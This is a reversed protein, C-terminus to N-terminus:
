SKGAASGPRFDSVTKMKDRHRQMALDILRDLLTGYPVGSAEWLKPYMSIPTFGPLTNVENIFVKGDRRDLFFDVRAMGSGDIARFATVALRRVEESLEPAIPAPILLQSGEALYKAEYDYFENCPVIEGPISAEAADNGLVSCEIERADLGAEIVAKRDYRFATELARGLEEKSRAKTIGVSSGTNAPKVFCPFGLNMSDVCKHRAAEWESRLLTLSRVVPLGADRFVRKMLDKDMGVSSALVGAGVYPLGALELVGQLTGDEGHGGHVIPFIVDLQVKRGPPDSILLGGIAPDPPLCCPVTGAADPGDRLLDAPSRSTVWQGRRTIGIPFSEYREPNLHQVISRASVLSVEHEVSQGGFIVGVRM